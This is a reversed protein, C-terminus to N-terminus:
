PHLGQTNRPGDVRNYSSADTKVLRGDRGITVTKMPIVIGTLEMAKELIRPLGQCCPVDMILVTISKLDAKEFIRAFKEVYEERDDFKPCGILVAKGKLFDEHFGGCAVPTCDAAVLIDAGKLFPAGPPILRIQVPWHSLSSKGSSRGSLVGTAERSAAGDFIEVLTSPCGCPLPTTTDIEPNPTGLHSVVVSEDFTDAERETISIAGRPCKGLCVGLGDCYRDAVLKAKGSVIRIAGEACAPVCLGCGDCKEEDIHVITRRIKMADGQIMCGKRCPAHM